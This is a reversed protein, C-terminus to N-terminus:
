FALAAAYDGLHYRALGIRSLFLYTLPDRPSLRIATELPALAAASRGVFVRAWGVANHALALSPNIATAHEAAALAESPRGAMLHALCAAYHSYADGNDLALAREALWTRGPAERAWRDLAQTMTTFEGSFPTPNSLILEGGGREEIDLQPPAYRADRFPADSLRIKADM